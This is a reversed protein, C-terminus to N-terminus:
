DNNQRALMAALLSPGRMSHDCAFIWFEDPWSSLTTGYEGPEYGERSFGIEISGAVKTERELDAIGRFLLSAVQLMKQADPNTVESIMDSALDAWDELEGASYDVRGENTM